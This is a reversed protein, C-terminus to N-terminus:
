DDMCYDLMITKNLLATQFLFSDLHPNVELRRLDIDNVIEQGQPNTFDAFSAKTHKQLLYGTQALADIGRRKAFDQPIDLM